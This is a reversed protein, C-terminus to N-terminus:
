LSLLVAAALGLVLGIVKILSLKEGLFIVGFLATLMIVGLIAVVGGSSIGVGTAFLLYWAVLALGMFLGALGPYILKQGTLEGKGMFLSMAVVVIASVTAAVAAGLIPRVKTTAIKTLVNAISIFVANALAFIWWM